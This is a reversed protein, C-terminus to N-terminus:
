MHKNISMTDRQADEHALENGPALYVGVGLDCVYAVLDAQAFVL